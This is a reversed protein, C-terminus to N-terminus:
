YLKSTPEPAIQSNGNKELGVNFIANIVPSSRGPFHSFFIFKGKFHNGLHGLPASHDYYGCFPLFLTWKEILYTSNITTKVTTMPGMTEKM